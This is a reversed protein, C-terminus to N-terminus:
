CRCGGERRARYRRLLRITVWPSRYRRIEHDRTCARRTRRLHAERTVWIQKRNSLAPSPLRTRQPRVLVHLDTVRHGRHVTSRCHIAQPSRNNQSQDLASSPIMIHVRRISEVAKRQMQIPIALPNCPCQITLISGRVIGEETKVEIYKYWQPDIFYPFTM